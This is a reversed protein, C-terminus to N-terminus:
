EGHPTVHHFSNHFPLNLLILHELNILYQRLAEWQTVPSWQIRDIPIQYWLPRLFLCLELGKVHM